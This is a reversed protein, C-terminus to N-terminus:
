DDKELVHICNSCLGEITEKIEIDVFEYDLPEDCRTCKPWDDERMLIEQRDVEELMMDKISGM